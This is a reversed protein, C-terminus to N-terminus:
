SAARAPTRTRARRRRRRAAGSAAGTPPAATPRCPARRTRAGVEHAHLARERARRGPADAGSSSGCRNGRRSAPPRPRARRAARRRAVEHQEDAVEARALGRERLPEARPSPTSSGTVLGVNVITCSYSPGAAARARRRTGGRGPGPGRRGRSRRAPRRRRRSPRPTPRGRRAPAHRGLMQDHPDLGAGGIGLPHELQRVVPRAPAAPAAATSCASVRDPARSISSSPM